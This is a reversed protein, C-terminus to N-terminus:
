DEPTLRAVIRVREWVELNHGDVRYGLARKVAEGDGEAAFDHRRLVHGDQSILYARYDISSAVLM